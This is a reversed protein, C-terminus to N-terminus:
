GTRLTRGGTTLVSPEHAANEMIDMGNNIMPVVNPMFYNLFIMMELSGANKYNYAQV